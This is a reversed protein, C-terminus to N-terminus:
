PEPEPEADAEGENYWESGMYLDHMHRIIVMIVAAVPLALLIGVFGFLQGGAMIAFIVAVPHLGIKDGVLLPTLLMGELAQGALFIGVAIGLHLFDGFQFWAAILAAVIGVFFGLYPVISALGALMGILFALKLGMMWLGLSYFVGLAVMVTLQGRVFAGLVEDCEKALHVVTLEQKRPLLARIKSMLVDWDRLLFFAVVPILVLNALFGVFALSSTTVKKIVATAVDSTQPLNDVVTQRIKEMRVQDPEFGVKAQIWPLATQHVWAGINPLQSQLYDLQRFIMPILLLLLLALMLSLVIFVVVVAWTRTLGREELRDAIPDGLYALGAGILFPALIPQLLYVLIGAGVVGAVVFWTRTAIM